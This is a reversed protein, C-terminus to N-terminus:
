QATSASAQSTRHYIQVQEDYTWRADAIDIRWHRIVMEMGDVDPEIDLIRRVTTDPSALRGWTSM